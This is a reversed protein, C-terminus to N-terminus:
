SENFEDINVSKQEDINTEKRITEYNAPNKGM